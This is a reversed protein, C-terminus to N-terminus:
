LTARAHWGGHANRARQARTFHACACIKKQASSKTSFARLNLNHGAKINKEFGHFIVNRHNPDASLNQAAFEPLEFLDDYEDDIINNQMNIPPAQNEPFLKLVQACFFDICTDELNARMKECVRM